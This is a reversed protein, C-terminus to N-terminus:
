SYLTLIFEFDVKKAHLIYPFNETVAQNLNLTSVFSDQAKSSLIRTTIIKLVNADEASKFFHHEM